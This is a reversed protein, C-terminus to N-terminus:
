GKVFVDASQIGFELASTHSDFYIDIRKGKIAGGCDQAIYTHGNIIVETGYPIVNPDVAITVGQQVKAGTATIGDSKGCCKECPCYASLLFNGINILQMEQEPEPEVIEPKIPQEQIQEVQETEITTIPEIKVEAAVKGANHGVIGGLLFFALCFAVFRGVVKEPIIRKIEYM